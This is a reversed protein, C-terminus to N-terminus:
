RKAMIGLSNTCKLSCLRDIRIRFVNAGVEAKVVRAALTPLLCNWQEFLDNRFIGRTQRRDFSQRGNAFPLSSDLIGNTKSLLNVRLPRRRGRLEHVEAPHRHCNSLRRHGDICKLLSVAIM